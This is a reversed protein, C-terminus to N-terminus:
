DQFDIVETMVGYEMLAQILEARDLFARRDGYVRYAQLRRVRVWRWLVSRAIRAEEAATSLAILRERDPPDGIRRRKRAPRAGAQAKNGRM